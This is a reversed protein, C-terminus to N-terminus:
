HSKANISNPLKALAMPYWSNLNPLSYPHIRITRHVQSIYLNSHFHYRTNMQTQAISDLTASKTGTAIAYLSVVCLFTNKTSFQQTPEQLWVLRRQTGTVAREATAIREVTATRGVVAIRGAVVVTYGFEFLCHRGLRNSTDPAVIMSRFRYCVSEVAPLHDIWM